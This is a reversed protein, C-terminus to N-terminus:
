PDPPGDRSGAEAADLADLLRLVADPCAAAIHAATFRDRRSASTGRTILVPSGNYGSRSLAGNGKNVRVVARSTYVSGADYGRIIWAGDGIAARAEQAVRRLHRREDPSM